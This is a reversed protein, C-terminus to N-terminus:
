YDLRLSSGEAAHDIRGEEELRRIGAAECCPRYATSPARWKNAM